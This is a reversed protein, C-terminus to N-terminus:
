PVECPNVQSTHFTWLRRPAHKTQWETVKNEFEARGGLGEIIVEGTDSAVAVYRPPGVLFNAMHESLWGGFTMPQQRNFVRDNEGGVELPIAVNVVNMWHTFENPGPRAGVVCELCDTHLAIWESTEKDEHFHQALVLWDGTSVVHLTVKGICADNPNPCEAATFERLLFGDRRRYYLGLRQWGAPCTDPYIAVRSM